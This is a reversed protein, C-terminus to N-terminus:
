TESNIPALLGQERKVREELNKAITFQITAGARAQHPIVEIRGFHQDVIKKCIALGM